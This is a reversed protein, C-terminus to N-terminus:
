LWERGTVDVEMTIENLNGALDYINNLMYDPHIPDGTNIIKYTYNGKGSSDQAIGNYNKELFRVTADWQVGYILTSIAEGQSASLAPYVARAKAVAGNNGPDDMSEGWAINSWPVVNQVSQAIEVGNVIKKSAEYRAIYFGGYKKVSAVMANYEEEESTYGDIKLPESYSLEYDQLEGSQYGKERVFVDEFTKGEPVDVPVWVFQNRTLRAETVNADTVADPGEYIVLGTEIKNEGTAQSAM